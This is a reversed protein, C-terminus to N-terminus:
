GRSLSQNDREVPFYNSALRRQFIPDPLLRQSHDRRSRRYRIQFLIGQKRTRSLLIFPRSKALWAWRDSESRVRARPSRTAAMAIMKRLAPASRSGAPLRIEDSMIPANSIAAPSISVTAPDSRRSTRANAIAVPPTVVSAPSIKMRLRCVWKKGVAVSTM